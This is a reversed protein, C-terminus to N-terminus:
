DVFDRSVLEIAQRALRRVHKQKLPSHLFRNLSALLSPPASEGAALVEEEVAITTKLLHASFIPDRMGHDLILGFAAELFGAQDDVQWSQQDVSLDVYRGSRGLFLAM